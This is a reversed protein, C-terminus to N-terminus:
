EEDAESVNRGGRYRGPAPLPKAVSDRPKSAPATMLGITALALGMVCDDHCGEQGAVRGNPMYVFTRLEQLTVPDRVLVSAERVARDLASIMQPKTVTTTKFGLEQLMPPRRDDAPRMRRYILHIPYQQRLLEEILALGSSNAEPVLYAWGYWRGLQRLYEGFPSPELRGRLVAVQEGTDRDLVQAVSYDPDQTGVSEGVNIGEASDAGIVYEKGAVPRKWIRLLGQGDERPMFQLERRTGVLVEELEGALPERVIPMRGLSVLDFRPRGSTLFAEEPNSPYEQRFRDGNGQCNNEICWRRWALQEPRLNHRHQLEREEKTLSREFAAPNEIPRSYEPHEWWAFFVAFWESSRSPDTARQWLDFFPGGVGNATSEVIVMTGPQDPVTQMLGTMLRAADQYFAFESLHLFRMSFSRGSSKSEASSVYVASDNAWAMVQESNKRLEPLKIGHFPRFSEQFQQYYGFLNEATKYTDGYVAARQGSWFPVRRFMESAVGVSFHVQRAKLVVGRVPKGAREQRSIAEDLKRQSPSLELPVKYGSKNRISLSRRCFEAHDGFAEIIRRQEEVPLTDVIAM